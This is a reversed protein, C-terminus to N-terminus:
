KGGRLETCDGCLQYEEVIEALRIKGETIEGSTELEELERIHTECIIPLYYVGAFPLSTM